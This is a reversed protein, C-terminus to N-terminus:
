RGKVLAARIGAEVSGLEHDARVFVALSQAKGALVLLHRRQGQIAASRLEGAQFPAGLEAAMMAVYAAQGAAVEAEYGGESARKGDRTVLVAEVVGPVQRAAEVAATAGGASAASAAHVPAKPALASRREDVVRLADLLLHECSKQITRRAAVVNPEVSFRGRPWALIERFAEEGVQDGREAHIIEGDRFFIVGFAGDHEIRFCGSFRNQANLQLLDSLGLGAVGGEFGESGRRLADDALTM